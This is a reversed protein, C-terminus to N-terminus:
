SFAARALDDLATHVIGRTTLVPIEKHLKWSHIPYRATNSHDKYLRM